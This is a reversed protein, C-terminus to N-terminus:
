SCIKHQLADDMYCWLPPFQRHSWVCVVWQSFGQGSCLVCCNTELIHIVFSYWETPWITYVCEMSQALWALRCVECLMLVDELPFNTSEVKGLRYVKRGPHSCQKDWYRKRTFQLNDTFSQLNYKRNSILWNYTFHKTEYQIHLLSPNSNQM